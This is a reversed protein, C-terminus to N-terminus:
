KLSVIVKDGLTEKWMNRLSEAQALFLDKFM